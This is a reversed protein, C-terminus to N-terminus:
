ARGRRAFDEATGGGPFRTAFDLVGVWTPRLAIRAMRLGPVDTEARVAAEREEGGYRRHAALYEPAVGDVDTVTVRGRLLLM